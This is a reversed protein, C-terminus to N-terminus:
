FFTNKCIRKTEFNECRFNTFDDFDHPLGLWKLRGEIAMRLGSKEYFFANSDLASFSCVGNACPDHREYMVRKSVAMTPTVAFLIILFIAYFMYKRRLLIAFKSTEFMVSDGGDPM